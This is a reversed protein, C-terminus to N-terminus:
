ENYDPPLYFATCTTDEALTITIERKSDVKGDVEWRDFFYTIGARTIRREAELTVKSNKPFSETFATIRKVQENNVTIHASVPKESRVPIDGLWGEVVEAVAKVTLTVTEGLTPAEVVPIIFRVTQDAGIVSCFAGGAVTPTTLEKGVLTLTLAIEYSLDVNYDISSLEVLVVDGPKAHPDIYIKIDQGENDTDWTMGECSPQEKDDIAGSVEVDSDVSEGKVWIYEKFGLEGLSLPAWEPLLGRFIDNFGVATITKSMSIDNDNRLPPKFSKKPDLRFDKGKSWGLHHKGLWGLDVEMGLSLTARLGLNSFAEYGRYDGGYGEGDLMQWKINAKVEGGPNVASPDITISVSAPFHVSLADTGAGIHIEAGSSSWDFSPFAFGGGWNEQFMVDRSATGTGASTSGEEKTVVSIVVTYLKYGSPKGSSDRVSLDFSDGGVYGSPPTYTLQQVRDAVLDGKQPSVTGGQSPQWAYFSVTDGIDVDRASIAIQVPQDQITMVNQPIVAVPSDNVPEVTITVTGKSESPEGSFGDVAVYRLSDSDSYDRDPTYFIWSGMYSGSEWSGHLPPDTVLFLINYRDADSARLFIDQRGGDEIFSVSFDEVVPLDNVANVTISVTARRTGGWGDDVEFTFSDTASGHGTPWDKNPTYTVNPPSGAVNGNVSQSCKYTLPDGDVDSGTLTILLPTDENTTVSQPDAVPRDNVANVTITVTATNTGGLGDDVQFTFGDTATQHGTPWNPNPAYICVRGGKVTGNGPQTYSFNLKDGDVDSGTLTISLQTDENTTVSQPNAVPPDNVAIVTISITATDSLKGDTVTFTFSDNASGHGTPWDKNPMYTVNPPSGAVNGNGPRSWKYKLPDGDVDSAVLGIPVPTDENTTVSQGQAVPADNVPDIFINVSAKGSAVGDRAIVTFTDMGNYDKNPTYTLNPLKGALRGFHPGGFVDTTLADGDVDSIEVKIRASTDEKIFLDATSVVPPDNVPNITISVTAPESGVASDNVTFTFSDSGNYDPNPAYTLNPAAGTLSGNTPQTVIKFTLPDGDPDDGTLVIDVATDEDTTLSQSTASPATNIPGLLAIVAALYDLESQVFKKFNDLLDYVGYSDAFGGSKDTVSAIKDEITRRLIQLAEVESNLFDVLKQEPNEEPAALTGAEYAGWMEGETVISEYRQHVDSELGWDHHYLLEFRSQSFQQLIELLKAAAGRLKDACQTLSWVAMAENYPRYAEVCSSCASELAQFAAEEFAPIKITDLQEALEELSGKAIDSYEFVDMEQADQYLKESTAHFLGFVTEWESTVEARASAMERLAHLNVDPLKNQGFAIKEYPGNLGVSCLSFLGVLLLRKALRKSLNM